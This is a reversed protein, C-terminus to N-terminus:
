LKGLYQFELTKNMIDFALKECSHEIWINFNISYTEIRYIIKRMDSALRQQGYYILLNGSETLYYGPESIYM